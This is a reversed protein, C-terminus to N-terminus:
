NGSSPGALFDPTRARYAIFVATVAEAHLQHRVLLFSSSTALAIARVLQGLSFLLM